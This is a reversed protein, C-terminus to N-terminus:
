PQGYVLEVRQATEGDWEVAVDEISVPPGFVSLANLLDGADFGAFTPDDIGFDPVLEREGRRTLATVAIQEALGDDSDQEVTAVAGTRSVRFPHSIIRSM